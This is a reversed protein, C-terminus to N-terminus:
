EISGYRFTFYDYLSRAIQAIVPERDAYDLIRSSKIFVVVVLHGAGHPLDIIGVDSITMSITGTKHSVQTNPPLMGKLRRAGTTTGYMIDILLKSSAESLFERRWIGALLRTMARPTATDRPSEEFRRWLADVDVWDIDQMVAQEYDQKSVPSEISVDEIGLSNMILMWTPRDVRIDVGIERMKETVAEAGGAMDLVLDTAVNDSYQLMVAILNELTLESGPLLHQTIASRTPRLDDDKIVYKEDLSHENSDVLSLMQLAIPVKYTSAMPFSVDPNLYVEQGSELHLVGLGVVGLAGEALRAVEAELLAIGSDDEDAFSATLSCVLAFLAFMWRM